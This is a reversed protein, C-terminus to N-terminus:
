VGARVIGLNYSMLGYGRHVELHSCITLLGLFYTLPDGLVWVGRGIAKAFTYSSAVCKFSAHPGLSVSDDSKTMKSRLSVGSGPPVLM